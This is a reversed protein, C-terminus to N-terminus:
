FQDELGPQFGVSGLVSATNGRQVVVSLRQLLFAKAKVEGTCRRVRHGLEKLFSLTKKGMARFTEIAIPAFSYGVGLSSYKDAKKGEALDAM